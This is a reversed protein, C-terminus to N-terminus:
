IQQVRNPAIQHVATNQYLKTHSKLYLTPLLTNMQSGNQYEFLYLYPVSQKLVSKAYRYIIYLGM